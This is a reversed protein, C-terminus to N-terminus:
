NQFRDLFNQVCRKLIEPCIDDPSLDLDLYNLNSRRSLVGLSLKLKEGAQDPDSAIIINKFRSIIMAKYPSLNSGLLAIPNPAGANELAMMSFCGEAVTICDISPDLYPEGFVAMNLNAGM